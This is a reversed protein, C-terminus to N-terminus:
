PKKRAKDLEGPLHEDLVETISQVDNALTNVNLSIKDIKSMLEKIEYLDQLVIGIEENLNTLFSEIKEDKQKLTEQDKRILDISKEIRGIRKLVSSALAAKFVDEQM